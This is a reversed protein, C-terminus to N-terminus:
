LRPLLWNILLNNEYIYKAIKSESINKLINAVFETTIFVDMIGMLVWVILFGEAVGIVLGGFTNLEKVVPIAKTITSLLRIVIKLIISSIIFLIIVGVLNTINSALVQTEQNVFTINEFPIDILSNQMRENLLGKIANEMNFMGNLVKEIFIGSFMKTALASILLSAFSLVTYVLGKAYGKLAFFVIVGIVILDVLSM